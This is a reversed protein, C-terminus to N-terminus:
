GVIVDVASTIQAFSEAYVDNTPRFPNIVDDDDPSARRGGREAAVLPIAAGLREAPSSTPMVSVDVRDLLRAFERLTFATRVAAPWLEVVLGLQARTMPLILARRRLM